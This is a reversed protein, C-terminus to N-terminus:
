IGAEEKLEAFTYSGDFVYANHERRFRWVKYHLTGNVYGQKEVRINLKEKIKKMSPRGGKKGNERSAAQKAPTKAQGGKKGIEALYDIATYSEDPYVDVTNPGIAAALMGAQKVHGEASVANGSVTLRITRRKREVKRREFEMPDVDSWLIEKGDDDLAPYYSTEGIDDASLIAFFTGDKGGEVGILNEITKTM